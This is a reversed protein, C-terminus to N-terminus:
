LGSVPNLLSKQNNISWVDKTGNVYGGAEIVFATQSVSSGAIDALDSKAHKEGYTALFNTTNATTILCAGGTTVTGTSDWQWELCSRGGGGPGCTSVVADTDDFGLTYYFKSGDRAYGVSGLCATYSSNEGAFAALTSYAGNLSMKAESQRAKAQFKSYQPIAISALIGIIAVVVMLEVLTFGAQGLAKLNNIKNNTNM